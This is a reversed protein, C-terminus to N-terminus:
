MEAVHLDGQIDVESLGRVGEEAWPVFWARVFHPQLRLPQCLSYVLAQLSLVAHRFGTSLGLSGRESVPLNRLSCVSM